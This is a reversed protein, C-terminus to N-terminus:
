TYPNIGQQMLAFDRDRGARSQAYDKGGYLSTEKKMFRKVKIRGELTLPMNKDNTAYTLAIRALSLNNEADYRRWNNGVHAIYRMGNRVRWMVWTTQNGYHVREFGVRKSYDGPRSTNPVNGDKHRLAKALAIRKLRAAEADEMESISVAEVRYTLVTDTARAPKCCQCPRAPMTRYANFNGSGAVHECALRISCYEETYRWEQALQLAGRESNYPRSHHEDQCDNTIAEVRYRSM